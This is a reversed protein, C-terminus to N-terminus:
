SRTKTVRIKYYYNNLESRQLEVEKIMQMKRARLSKTLAELNKWIMLYGNKPKCFRMWNTFIKFKSDILFLKIIKIKHRCRYGNNKVQGKCKMCSQSGIIYTGVSFIRRLQPPGGVLVSISPQCHVMSTLDLSGNPFLKNLQLQFSKASLTSFFFNFALQYYLSVM